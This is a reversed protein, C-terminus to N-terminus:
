RSRAYLHSTPRKARESRQLLTSLLALVALAMFDAHFMNAKAM